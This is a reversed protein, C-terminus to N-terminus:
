SRNLDIIIINIIEDVISFHDTPSQLVLSDEIEVIQIQKQGSIPRKIVNEM